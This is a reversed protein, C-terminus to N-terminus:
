RDRSDIVPSGPNIINRTWFLAKLQNPADPAKMTHQNSLEKYFASIHKSTLNLKFCCMLGWVLFCSNFTDKDPRTYDDCLIMVHSLICTELMCVMRIISGSYIVFALLISGQALVQSRSLQDKGQFVTFGDNSYEWAKRRSLFAKCGTQKDQRM